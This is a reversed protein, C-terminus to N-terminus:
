LDFPTLQYVYYNIWNIFLLNATNRWKNLVKSDPNDNKYYNFPLEIDYGLNIDRMYENHLSLTDYEFHGNIFFQTRDKNSVINVGDRTEALLDLDNNKLIDEKSVTSHRSQPCNFEDNFGRFLNENPKLSINTTVGFVKKETAHKEVDHFYHLGALAAWCIFMTSTVNTKSFEFIKKMEDWYDVDEFDIQELPAGTIIMADYKNDKIDDISSYYKKIHEPSTNKHNHTFPVIIDLDVQLSTNGLLRLFQVETEIKNPMLNVLIFKLERIDQRSARVDEMVFVGEDLLKKKAPHDTRIIIPM